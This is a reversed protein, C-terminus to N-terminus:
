ARAQKALYLKVMERMGDALKVKPQWGLEKKARECSYARDLTLQRVNEPDLSTKGALRQFKLLLSIASPPVHKQPPAVGLESAASCLLEQQTLQESGVINYERCPPTPKELALMIASVADSVHLLPIRNQAAGLFVMKGKSLYRLVPCYGQEFGPGYIMGFRLFVLPLASYSRAAEEGMLKSKGYPSETKPAFTEDVTQGAYEGYVSISSAMVAKQVSPPCNSLINRVANVNAALLEYYSHSGVLGALHAVYKVGSFASAPLPSAALDHEIREVGSPLPSSSGLRVVARVSYNRSLLREVLASGLRGSAGTVLVLAM